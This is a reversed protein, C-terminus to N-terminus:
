EVVEEGEFIVEGESGTSGQAVVVEPQAFTFTTLAKDYVPNWFQQEILPMEVTFLIGQDLAALMIRDSTKVEIADLDGLKKSTPVNSESINMEKLWEETTKLSTDAIKLSLSGSKARSFIQLDAYADPDANEGSNNNTISLNDPYSFTFGAPDTYEISTESPTIEKAVTPAELGIKNSKPKLLYFSIGVVLILVVLIPLVIKKM